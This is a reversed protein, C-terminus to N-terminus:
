YNQQLGGTLEGTMKRINRRQRIRNMTDDIDKQTWNSDSARKYPNKWMRYHEPDSYKRIYQNKGDMSRDEKRKETKQYYADWGEGERGSVQNENRNVVIVVNQGDGLKIYSMRDGRGLKVGNEEAWADLGFSDAWKGHDVYYRRDNTIQNLQSRPMVTIVDNDTLNHIDICTSNSTKRNRSGIGRYTEFGGYKKFINYLKQSQIGQAEVLIDQIAEQILSRLKSETLTYKM